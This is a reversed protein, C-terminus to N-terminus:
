GCARGVGIIHEVFGRELRGECGMGLISFHLYNLSSLRDNYNELSRLDVVVFQVGM